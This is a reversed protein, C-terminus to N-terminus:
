LPDMRLRELRLSAIRWEDGVLAYEEDYHGAGRIGTPEGDSVFEVLDDMAWTGSATGVGTLTIEPMHGHHVTRADGVAGRVFDVVAQRGHLAGLDPVDDPVEFLVDDTFVEGWDDWRKTDMLRFYRAKLRKIEEIAGAEDDRDVM